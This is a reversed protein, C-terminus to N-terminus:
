SSLRDDEHLGSFRSIVACQCEIAVLALIEASAEQFGFIASNARLQAIGSCPDCSGAGGSIAPGTRLFRLFQKDM